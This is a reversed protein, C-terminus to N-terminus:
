SNTQLDWEWTGANTGLIIYSLRNKEILLSEEKEKLNTQDFMYGIFNIIENEENRLIKTYDYFYKYTGNKMQIRYSQEFTDINNKIFSEIEQSVQYKDDPHILNSYNFDESLMEDKTYGLINECNDSINKIPWNNEPIWEITIVPGSSFLNQNKLLEKVAKQEKKFSKNLVLFILFSTFVFLVFLIIVVKLDEKWSALYVDEAIATQVYFPFKEMVIFSGVRKKSDTSAIYELTGTKEGAKIRVIIPNNLPLPQNTELKNNSPYKSILKMNDSRRLLSIGNKGLDISALTENISDINIVATIIGLLDKNEDRIARALVLSEKGTIRSTIVDSFSILLNENNKLEQFHKRDSIDIDNNLSSSSYIVIGNSDAYNIANINHSDNILSTFRKSIIEKKEENTAELFYKNEKTINLMINQAFKLLNNTNEFDSELKKSLLITINNTKISANEISKKYELFGELIVILVIIFISIIFWFYTFNKTSFSKIM